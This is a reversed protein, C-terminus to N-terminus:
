KNILGFPKTNITGTNLPFTAATTSNYTLNVRIIINLITANLADRVNLHYQPANLVTIGDIFLNKSRSLEVL